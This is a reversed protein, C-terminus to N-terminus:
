DTEKNPEIHVKWYDGEMDYQYVSKGTLYNDYKIRDVIWDIIDEEEQADYDHQLREIIINYGLTDVFVPLVRFKTKLIKNNAERLKYQITHDLYNIMLPSYAKEYNITLTM